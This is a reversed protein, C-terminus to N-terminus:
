ISGRPTCRGYTDGIEDRSDAGIVRALAGLAMLLVVVVLLSLLVTM